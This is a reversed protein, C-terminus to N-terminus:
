KRKMCLPQLALLYGPQKNAGGEAPIKQKLEGARWRRLICGREDAVTRERTRKPEKKPQYRETLYESKPLAKPTPM